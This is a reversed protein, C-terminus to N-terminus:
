RVSAEEPPVTRRERVREQVYAVIRDAYSEFRPCVCSEGLLERRAHADFRVRSELMEVLGLHSHSVRGVGPTRLLAKTVNSPINGRPAPRGGVRAVLDFVERGSLPADDVLHVTRGLAREDRGLLRAAKVVFDVPVLHLPEDRNPLPLAMEPPSTLILVMLLYPGDFRDVEGSVSDGIIVSPRLVVIPLRAMAARVMKEAIGRTEEVANRFSQGRDLDVERFIGVTDGAVATSSHFVLARLDRTDQAFELIERAGKVNVHEAEKRDAGLYTVHAMHHVRDVTSTLERWEAGSLGLDMAAADGPTLVVRAQAEAPLAEWALKAERELKDHVVAHVLTRPEAAVLEACMRRAAFSPFGTLLVVEDYGRRAM